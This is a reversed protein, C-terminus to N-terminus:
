YVMTGMAAHVAGPFYFFWKEAIYGSMGQHTKRSRRKRGQSVGEGRIQLREAQFQKEWVQIIMIVKGGSSSAKFSIKVGRLLWAKNHGLSHQGLRGTLTLKWRGPANLVLHTGALKHCPYFCIGPQHLSM